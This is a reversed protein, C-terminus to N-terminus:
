LENKKAPVKAVVIPYPFLAGSVCIPLINQRTKIRIPSNFANKLPAKDDIQM